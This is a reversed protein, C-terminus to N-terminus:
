YSHSVNEHGLIQVIDAEGRMVKVHDIRSENRQNGVVAGSEATGNHGAAQSQKETEPASLRGSVEPFYDCQTGPDSERSGNPYVRDDAVGLERMQRGRIKACGNEDDTKAQTVFGHM